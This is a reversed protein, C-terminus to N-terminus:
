ERIPNRLSGNIARMAHDLENKCRAVDPHMPSGEPMYAILAETLQVACNLAHVVMGAGEQLKKLQEHAKNLERSSNFALTNRQTTLKHIEAQLATIEDQM